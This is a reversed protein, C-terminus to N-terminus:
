RSWAMRDLAKKAERSGEKAALQYWQLAKLEMNRQGQPENKDRPGTHLRHAIQEYVRGMAVKGKPNDADLLRQAEVMQIGERAKAFGVEDRSYMPGSLEYLEKAKDLDRHVGDGKLYRDALELLAFRKGQEWELQKAARKEWKLQNEKDLQFPGHPFSVRLIKRAKKMSDMDHNSEDAALALWKYAEEFNHMPSDKSQMLLALEVMAPTYRQKAARLLDDWGKDRKWRELYTEM